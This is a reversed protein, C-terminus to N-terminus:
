IFDVMRRGRARPIRQNADLNRNLVPNAAQRIMTVGRALIAYKSGSDLLTAAHGPSSAESTAKRPGLHPGSHLCHDPKFLRDVDPVRARITGPVQRLRRELAQCRDDVM